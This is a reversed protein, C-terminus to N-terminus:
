DDFRLALVHLLSLAGLPPMTQASVRRNVWRVAQGLSSFLVIEARTAGILDGACDDLTLMLRSTTGLMPSGSDDYTLLAYLGKPKNPARM